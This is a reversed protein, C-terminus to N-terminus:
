GKMDITRIASEITLRVQNTKNKEDMTTAERTSGTLDYQTKYDSSDIQKYRGDLPWKTQGHMWIGIGDSSKGILCMYHDITFSFQNQLEASITGVSFSLHNYKEEDYFLGGMIVELCTPNSTRALEYSTDIPVDSLQHSHGCLYIPINEKRILSILEKKANENFFVISHHGFLIPIITKGETKLNTLYGELQRISEKDPLCLKGNDNIKGTDDLQGALLATNFGIFVPEARFEKDRASPSFCIIQRDGFIKVLQCGKLRDLWLTNYFKEFSYHVIITKVIDDADLHANCTNAAEKICDSRRIVHHSDPITEGVNRDLDHNGPCFCFRETSIKIKCLDLIKEITKQVAEQQVKGLDGRHFFDGTSIVCDVGREGLIGSLGKKEYQDHSVPNGRIIYDIFSEDNQTIHLDSMHLWRFVPTTSDAVM